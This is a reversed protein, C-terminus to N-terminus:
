HRKPMATRAAAEASKDGMMGPLTEHANFIANSRSTRASSIAQSARWMAEFGRMAQAASPECFTQFTEVAHRTEPDRRMSDGYWSLCHGLVLQEHADILAPNATWRIANVLPTGGSTRHTADYWAHLEDCADVKSFIVRIAIGARELDDFNLALARAVPSLASRTILALRRQGPRGAWDSQSRDLYVGILHDIREQKEKQKVLEQNKM